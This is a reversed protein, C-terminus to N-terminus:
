FRHSGSFWVSVIFFSVLCIFFGALVVVSYARSSGRWGRRSLALALYMLFVAATLLVKPEVLVSWSERTAWCFGALIGLGLTSLGCRIMKVQISELMELPPLRLVVAAPAKAKLRRYEVLYGAAALSALCFTAYSFVSLGIHLSTVWDALAPRDAPPVTPAILFVPFIFVLVLVVTFFSLLEFRHRTLLAGYLLVICWSFFMVANRLNYLPFAGALSGQRLLEVSHLLFALALFLKGIRANKLFNRAWLLHGLAALAYCIGAGMFIREM